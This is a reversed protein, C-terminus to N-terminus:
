ESDGSQKDIWRAVAQKHFDARGQATRLNPRVGKDEGASAAASGGKPAAIPANKVAASRAQKERLRQAVHPKIMRNFIDDVIDINGSLFARRMEPNANIMMTMSQEFPFVMESLEGDTGAKFGAKKALDLVRDHAQSNIGVVHSAMLANQSATFKDLFNPDAELLNLLKAVGPAQNESVKKLDSWIEKFNGKDAPQADEGKLANVLRDVLGVKKSLAEFGEPIKALQAELQAVKNELASKEPDPTVPKAVIASGDPNLGYEAWPNPAVQPAASGAGARAADQPTPQGVVQEAM